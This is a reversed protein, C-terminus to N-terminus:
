VRRREFEEVLPTQPAMVRSLRDVDWLIIARIEGRQAMDRISDLGPRDLRGGSMDERVEKIITYGGEAAYQRCSDAQTDLSTGHEAQGTTSVRCYAAAAKM